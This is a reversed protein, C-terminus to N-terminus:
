GLRHERGEVGRGLRDVLEARHGALRDVWADRAREVALEDREAAGVALGLEVGVGFGEALLDSVARRARGDVLEARHGALRDVRGDRTREVALEDGEAAGVALRLEVGVGFGEALLDSAAGRSRRDVLEARHGALRDIWADRAREVVLQDREA